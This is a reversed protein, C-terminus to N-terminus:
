APLAAAFDPAKIALVDCPLSELVHEATSGIFLRELGSRSVAGMVLIDTGVDRVLAPLEESAVGLRVHLDSMSVGYPAVVRELEGRRLTCAEALDQKSLANGIGLPGVSPGATAMLPLVANFVRLGTGFRTALFHGSALIREDLARPRDYEHGPDIAAAVVPQQQWANGKTLLLPVPCGRILHWDTNTIFTRKLLSHHHTDKVVLDASGRKIRELLIRYLPDGVETELCVDIGQQRIPQALGELMARLNVVFSQAEHRALHAAYRVNLSERTECALLEIRADCKSAIRLAKDIAPHAAATPDVIVLINAIKM